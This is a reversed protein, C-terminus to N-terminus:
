IIGNSMLFAATLGVIIITMIGVFKFTPGLIANGTVREAPEDNVPRTIFGQYYTSSGVTTTTTTDIATTTHALADDAVNGDNNDSITAIVDEMIEADDNIPSHFLPM